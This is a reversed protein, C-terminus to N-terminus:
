SFIKTRNVSPETNKGPQFYNNYIEKGLEFHSLCIVLDFSVM